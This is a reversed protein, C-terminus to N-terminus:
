LHASAKTGLVAGKLLFIGQTLPFASAFAQLGAPLIEFPITMGSFLLMPFYVLTCVWSATKEDPVLAAILFGLSFISAQVFFFTAIYRFPSGEIRVGFGFRKLIKGHRCGSFTLPIGMLASACIEISSSAALLSIHFVHQLVLSKEPRDM